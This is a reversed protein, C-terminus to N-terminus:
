VPQYSIASEKPLATVMASTGAIKRSTVARNGATTHILGCRGRAFRELTLQGRM